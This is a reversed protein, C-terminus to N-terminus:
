RLCDKYALLTKDLNSRLIRIMGTWPPNVWVLASVSFLLFYLSFRTFRNNSLLGFTQRSQNKYNCIARGTSMASTFSYSLGTWFWATWAPTASGSPTCDRKNVAFFCVSPWYCVQLCRLATSRCFSSQSYRFFAILSLSYMTASCWSLSEVLLCAQQLFLYTNVSSVFCCNRTKASYPVSESVLASIRHGTVAGTGASSFTKWNVHVM